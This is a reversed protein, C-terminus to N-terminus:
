TASRDSELVEDLETRLKAFGLAIADEKDIIVLASQEMLTQVEASAHAYFEAIEGYDFRIHRTAAAMLFERLPGDLEAANIETVLEDAYSRDFLDSIEPPEPSTPEYQPINTAETYRDELTPLEPNIGDGDLLAELDDIDDPAFGTGDLTDGDDIIHQLQDLLAQNDWSADDATKNDALNMKTARKDDVDVYIVPVKDGFREPQERSLEQWAQFRHNGVIIRGSNKQVLLASFMGNVLMSEKIKAVVGRRANGPWFELKEPEVMEIAMDYVGVTM